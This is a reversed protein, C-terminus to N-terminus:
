GNSGVTSLTFANFDALGAEEAEKLWSQFQDFPNIAADSELLISKQYDYRHKQIGPKENM